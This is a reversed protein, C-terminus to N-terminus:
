QAAAQLVPTTLGALLREWDSCSFSPLCAALVTRHLAFPQGDCSRVVVDAFFGEELAPLLSYDDTFEVQTKSQVAIHLCHSLPLTSHHPHPMCPTVVKRIKIFLGGLLGDSAAGLVLESGEEHLIDFSFSQGDATGLLEILQRERDVM